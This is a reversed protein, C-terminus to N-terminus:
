QIIIKRSFYQESNIAKIFYIGSELYHMNLQIQNETTERNYVMQGMTNYVM